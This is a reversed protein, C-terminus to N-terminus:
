GMHDQRDEIVSAYHFYAKKAYINLNERGEGCALLRLSIPPDLWRPARVCGAEGCGMLESQQARESLYSWWWACSKLIIKCKGTQASRVSQSSGTHVSGWVCGWSQRSHAGWVFGDLNENGGGGALRIGFGCEGGGEVPMTMDKERAQGGGRRLSRQM